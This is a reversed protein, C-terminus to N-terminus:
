EKLQLNRQALYQSFHITIASNAHRSWSADDQLLVLALGQAQGVNM